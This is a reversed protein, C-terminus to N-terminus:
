HGCIEISKLEVNLVTQWKCAKLYAFSDLLLRELSPSVAPAKVKNVFLIFINLVGAQKASADTLLIM